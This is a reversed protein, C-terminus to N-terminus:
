VRGAFQKGILDEIKKITEKNDGFYSVIINGNKYFHPKSKFDYIKDGIKTGDTGITEAQKEVEKNNEYEYVGISDGDITIITLDGPLFGENDQKSDRIKYGAKELISIFEAANRVKVNITSSDQLEIKESSVQSNSEKTCGVLSIGICITAILIILKKM